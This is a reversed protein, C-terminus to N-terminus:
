SSTKLILFKVWPVLCTFYSYGLSCCRKVMGFIYKIINWTGMRWCDTQLFAIWFIKFTKHSFYVFPTPRNLSFIESIFMEMKIVLYCSHKEGENISSDHFMTEFAQHTEAFSPRDLPNWKWGITCYFCVIKRLWLHLEISRNLNCFLGYSALDCVHISIGWVWMIWVGQKVM